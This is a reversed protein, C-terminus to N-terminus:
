EKNKDNVVISNLFSKSWKIKNKITLRKKGAINAFYHFVVDINNDNLSCGEAFEFLSQAVDVGQYSLYHVYSYVRGRFDMFTPLYFTIDEFLIALELINRYLYYLSNHSLIEKRVEVDKYKDLSTLSNSLPHLRNKNNFIISDVGSNFELLLFELMEKNIRFKQKNLYNITDVQTSSIISKDEHKFSQKIFIGEKNIIDRM